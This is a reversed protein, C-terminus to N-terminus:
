IFITYVWIMMYPYMLPFFVVYLLVLLILRNKLPTNLKNLKNKSYVLRKYSKVYFFFIVFNLVVFMLSVILNTCNSLILFLNLKIFFGPLPPLGALNVIFLLLALKVLFLKKNNKSLIVLSTESNDLYLYFFILPICYIVMNLYIYTLTQNVSIFSSLM